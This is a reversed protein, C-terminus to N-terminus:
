YLLLVFRDPLAIDCKVDQIACYERYKGKKAGIGEVVQDDIGDARIFQAVISHDIKQRPLYIKLVIPIHELQVTQRGGHQDGHRPRNQPRRQGHQCRGKQSIHEREPSHPMTLKKVLKDNHGHIEVGTQDRHKHRHLQQVQGIIKQRYGETSRAAM